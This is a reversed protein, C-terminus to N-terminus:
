IGDIKNLGSAKANTEQILVDAPIVYGNMINDCITKMDVAYRLAQSVKKKSLPSPSGDKRAFKNLYFLRTYRGDISTM